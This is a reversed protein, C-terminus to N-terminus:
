IRGGECIVAEGEDRLEDEHQQVEGPCILPLVVQKAVFVEKRAALGGELSELANLVDVRLVRRMEHVGELQEELAPQAIRAVRNGTRAARASRAARRSAM